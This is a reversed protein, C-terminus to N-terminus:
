PTGSRFTLIFGLAFGSIAVLWFFPSSLLGRLDFSVEAYGAPVMAAVKRYGFWMWIVVYIVVSLILTFSGVLLSKLYIM